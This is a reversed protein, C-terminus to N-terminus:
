PAISSQGADVNTWVNADTTADTCIYYNGTSSNVWQTGLTANTSTTPNSSSVTAGGTPANIVGSGDDTNDGVIGSM